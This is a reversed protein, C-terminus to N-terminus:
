AHKRVFDLAATAVEHWGSDFVLSHGRGTIELFETVAPNRRQRRYSAAAIARPAIHDREGSILLLPGRGAHGTDVRAETAPNVNATAAQFLPIGSGAVPYTEYLSRAEEEGVANAFSYRFQPYSLAVSRRYNAPNGIVPLASRLASLPLPLVGRFPASDIAVSAAALGRGALQQTILGGFSHGIVVPRQRLGAVVQAMHDTVQGVSKGAFVEPHRRAEAVSEPDDPWGPAVTTCGNEEFLSRWPQWSSALMWLGHVFVVPTLGSENARDIEQQERASLSM